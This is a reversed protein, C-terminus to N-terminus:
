KCTTDKGRRESEAIHTILDLALKKYVAFLNKPNKKKLKNKNKNKAM